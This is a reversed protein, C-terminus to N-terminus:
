EEFRSKVRPRRASAASSSQPADPSTEVPPKRVLLGLKRAEERNDEVWQHHRRCLRAFVFYDRGGGSGRPIRHHVDLPGGCEGPAGYEPGECVKVAERYEQMADQTERHKEVRNPRQSRPRLKSGKAGFGDRPPAIYSHKDPGYGVHISATKVRGCDECRPKEKM